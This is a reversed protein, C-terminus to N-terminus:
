KQNFKSFKSLPIVHSNKAVAQHNQKDLSHIMVTFILFFEHEFLPFNDQPPFIFMNISLSMFYFHPSSTLNFIYNWYFFFKKDCQYSFYENIVYLKQNVKM